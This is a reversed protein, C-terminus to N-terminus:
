VLLKHLLLSYIVYFVWVKHKVIASHIFTLFLGFCAQISKMSTGIILQQAYGMNCGILLISLYISLNYLM